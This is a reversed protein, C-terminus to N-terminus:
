EDGGGAAECAGNQGGPESILVILDFQEPREDQLM